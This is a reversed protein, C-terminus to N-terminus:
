RMQSPEGADPLSEPAPNQHRIWVDGVSGVPLWHSANEVLWTRSLARANSSVFAAAPFVQRIIGAKYGSAVLLALGGEFEIVLFDVVKEYPYEGPMRVLAGRWVEDQQQDVLKSWGIRDTQM